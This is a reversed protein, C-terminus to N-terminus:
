FDFGAKTNMENNCPVCTGHNHIQKQFFGVFFIFPIGLLNLSKEKYIVKDSLLNGLGIL